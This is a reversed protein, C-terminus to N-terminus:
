AKMNPFLFSQESLQQQSTRMNPAAPLSIFPALQGPQPPSINDYKQISALPQWLRRSNCQHHNYLGNQPQEGSGGGQGGMTPGFSLFGGLILISFNLSILQDYNHSYCNKCVKFIFVVVLFLFSTLRSFNAIFPRSIM